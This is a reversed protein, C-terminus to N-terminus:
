AIIFKSINCDKLMLIPHKCDNNIDTKEIERRGNNNWQGDMYLNLSSTKSSIAPKAVMRAVFKELDQMLPVVLLNLKNNNSIGKKIKNADEGKETTLQNGMETDAGHKAEAELLM